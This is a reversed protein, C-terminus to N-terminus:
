LDMRHFIIEVIDHSGCQSVIIILLRTKNCIGITSNKTPASDLRNDRFLLSARGIINTGVMIPEIKVMMNEMSMMVPVDNFNTTGCMSGKKLRSIKTSPTDANKMNIIPITDNATENYEIPYEFSYSVLFLIDTKPNRKLTKMRDM